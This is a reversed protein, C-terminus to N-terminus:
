MPQWLLRKDSGFPGSEHSVCSHWWRVCDGQDGSLCSKRVSRRGTGADLYENSM